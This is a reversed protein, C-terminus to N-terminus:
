QAMINHALWCGCEMRWKAGRTANSTVLGASCVAPHEPAASALGPREPTSTRRCAPSQRRGSCARSGQRPRRGPRGAACARHPAAAGCGQMRSQCSLIVCRARNLIYNFKLQAPMKRCDGHLHAQLSPMGLESCWVIRCHWEGCVLGAGSKVGRFRLMSQITHPSTACPPPVLLAPQRPLHGVDRLVDRQGLHQM